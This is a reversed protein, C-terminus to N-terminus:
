WRWAGGKSLHCRARVEFPHPLAQYGEVLGLIGLTEPTHGLVVIISAPLRRLLAVAFLLLGLSAIAFEDFVSEQARPTAGFEIREYLGGVVVAEEQKHWIPEPRLQQRAGRLV